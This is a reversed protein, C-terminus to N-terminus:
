RQPFREIFNHIFPFDTMSETSRVRWKYWKYEEAAAAIVCLFLFVLLSPVYFVCVCNNSTTFVRQWMEATLVAVSQFVPYLSHITHPLHALLRCLHHRLNCVDALVMEAYRLTTPKTRHWIASTFMPSNNTWNKWRYNKAICCYFKGFFSGM